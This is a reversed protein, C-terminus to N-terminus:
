ETAVAPFAMLHAVRDDAVLVAGATRLGTLRYESGLGVAQALEVPCARLRQLVAGPSPTLRSGPRKGIADAAYGACLRSWARAFLGGGALLDAGAWRGSVYVIAGLQGAAPALERRAAALERERGIFRTLLAPLNSPPPRLEADSPSLGTDQTGRAAHQAREAGSQRSSGDPRGGTRRWHAEALLDHLAEPTLALGALPGRQFTHFLGHERCYTM